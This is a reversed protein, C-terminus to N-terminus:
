QAKGLIVKAGGLRGLGNPDGSEGKLVPLAAHPIKTGWGSISGADEANSAHLRLKQVM